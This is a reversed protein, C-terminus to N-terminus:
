FRFGIGLLAYGSNSPAAFIRSGDSREASWPPSGLYTDWGVKIGVNVLSTLNYQAEVGLGISGFGVFKSQILTGGLDTTRLKMGGVGFETCFLLVLGASDYHPTLCGGTAFVLGDLSTKTNPSRYTGPGLFSLRNRFILGLIRQSGDPATVFNGGVMSLDFRPMVTSPAAGVMFGGYVNLARALDFSLTG